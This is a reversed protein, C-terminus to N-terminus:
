KKLRDIRRADIRNQDNELAQWFDFFWKSQDLLGGEIPMIGKSAVAALNVEQALDGVFQKPCEDLVWHGRGDCHPCPKGKDLGSENCAVCDVQLRQHEEPMQLCTNGCGKCLEGCRIM